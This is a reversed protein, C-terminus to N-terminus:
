QKDRNSRSPNYLPHEDRYKIELPKRLSSEVKLINVGCPFILIASTYLTYEKLLSHGKLLFIVKINYRNKINKSEM